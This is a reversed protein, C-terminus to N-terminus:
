YMLIKRKQVGLLVPRLPYKHMEIGTCARVRKTFAKELDCTQAGDGHADTELQESARKDTGLNSACSSTLRLCM